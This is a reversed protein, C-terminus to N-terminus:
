SSRAIVSPGRLDLSLGVHHYTVGNEEENSPMRLVIPSVLVLYRHTRLELGALIGGAYIAAQKRAVALKKDREAETKAVKWETLVAAQAKGAEDTDVPGSLVLDTIGGGQAAAKFAFLGHALLHIAGLQECRTEGGKRFAARWKKRLDDDVILSRRLHLFARDVISRGRVEADALVYDVESVIGRLGIARQLNAQGANEEKSFGGSLGLYENLVAVANPQIRRGHDDVFRRLADTLRIGAAGVIRTALYAHDVDRHIM